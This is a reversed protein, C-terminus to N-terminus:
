IIFWYVVVLDIANNYLILLHLEYQYSATFSYSLDFASDALLVNWLTRKWVTVYIHDTSPQFQFNDIDYRLAMPWARECTVTCLVHGIHIYTPKTIVYEIRCSHRVRLITIRNLKWQLKFNFKLDFHIVQWTSNIATITNSNFGAVIENM